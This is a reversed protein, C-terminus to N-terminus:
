MKVFHINQYLFTSYFLDRIIDWFGVQSNVYVSLTSTVLGAFGYVPTFYAVKAFKQLFEPRFNLVGCSTDIEDSDSHEDIDDDRAYHANENGNDGKLMADRDKGDEATDM